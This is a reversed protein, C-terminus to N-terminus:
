GTLAAPEDFLISGVEPTREPHMAIADLAHRLVVVPDPTRLQLTGLVTMIIERTHAGRLSQSGFSLKRAIVTPRLSREATNNEARVIPDEVWHYLKDANERFIAQFSQIGPHRASRGIVELIRQRIRRAKRRYQPLRPERSPLGMARKLLPALRDVFANVEPHDPFDERLDKLDRLLHAFCFQRRIPLGNYGGYRDTELVGGLREKGLLEQAVSGSRTSRFAYVMTDLSRMMWAYGSDGDIRWVTEDAFIAAGTRLDNLLVAAAPELLGALRHMAATLTGKNIGTIRAIHGLTMGQLYHLSAVTALASNELMSDPLVGPTRPRVTRLCNPCWCDEHVTTRVGPGSPEWAITQRVRKSPRELVGGCCPCSPGPSLRRVEPLAPLRVTASRGHGKHGPKAGGKRAQNEATAKPKFPEKASSTSSGFPREHIHRDQRGLRAKLRRVQAKLRVNEHKLRDIRQM